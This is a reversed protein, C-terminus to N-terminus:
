TKGVFAVFDQRGTDLREWRGTNCFGLVLHGLYPSLGL